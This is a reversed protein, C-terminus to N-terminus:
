AASAAITVFVVRCVRSWRPFSVSIVRCRPLKAAAQNTIASEAAGAASAWFGPLMKRLWM